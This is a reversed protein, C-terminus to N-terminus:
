LSTISLSGMCVARASINRPFSFTSARALILEVESSIDGIGVYESIGRDCSSLLVTDSSPHPKGYDCIGGVNVKWSPLLTVYCFLHKSGPKKRPQCHFSCDRDCINYCMIVNAGEGWEINLDCEHKHMPTCFAVPLLLM